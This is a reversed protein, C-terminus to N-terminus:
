LLLAQSPHSPAQTNMSEETRSDQIESIVGRAWAARQFIVGSAGARQCDSQKEEEIAAQKEEEIAAELM